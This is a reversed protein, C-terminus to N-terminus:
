SIGLSYLRARGCTSACGYRSVGGADVRGVRRELDGRPDPHDGTIPDCDALSRGAVTEAPLPWGDRGWHRTPPPRGARVPDGRRLSDLRQGRAERRQFRMPVTSFHGEDEAELSVFGDRRWTALCVYGNHRHVGGEGQNHTTAEPSLPVSWEGPRMGVVGVGLYAGGENDSGPPGAPIIPGDMHREWHLGDRSTMLHPEVTDPNRLFFAPFMLRAEAGPWPTYANTYIDVDPEDTPRTEVIPRPEPWRDFRDTEAYAITRRGHLVPWSLVRGEADPLPRATRGLLGSTFPGAAGTASTSARTKTTTSPTRRTATTARSCPSM